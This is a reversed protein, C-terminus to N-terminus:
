YVRLLMNGLNHLPQTVSARTPHTYTSAPTVPQITQPKRPADKTPLFVEKGRLVKQLIPSLSLYGEGKSNFCAKYIGAPHYLASPSDRGSKDRQPKSLFPGTWESPNSASAISSRASKKAALASNQDQQQAQEEYQQHNAHRCPISTGRQM